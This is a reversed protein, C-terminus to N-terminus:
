SNGGPQKVEVPRVSQGPSAKDTGEIILRDGHKLGKLVLWNDGEANGTEVQRREVSNDETVVLASANGKVDRAIGQQPALIANELIGENIRARVYMGPLLLHQPNPFIARLIVSGTSENVALETLQLHGKEPYVSGDELILSVSLSEGNSSLAQQRLRLLDRSSRTVDVYIIDIARITTLATEQQATVLAGPTVSSIGIRGNIPASVTTWELQIRASELLATKESVSARAQECTARANDLDQRAINHTNALETYRRAKACDALMLAQVNKLSATAQNFSARYSASDIQYLPQGAKVDDGENFLRKQIIGGVQPRVEATTSSVTRGPLESIVSYIQANLTTVGVEIPPSSQTQPQKNDCGYLGAIAMISIIRLYM